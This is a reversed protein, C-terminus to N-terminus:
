DSVRDILECRDRGALSQQRILKEHYGLLFLTRMIPIKLVFKTIFRFPVRSFIYMSGVELHNLFGLREGLEVMGIKSPFTIHQGSEPAFYWWSRSSPKLDSMPLTETQLFLYTKNELVEEFSEMPWRIHELCEIVSVFTANNGLSEPGSLFGIALDQSAYPDYSRANIGCDRLMRTLLGTGGGWDLGSREKEKQLFLFGAIIRTAALGRIVLGTDLLSIPRAHAEELWFPNNVQISFCYECRTYLAQYKLVKDSDYYEVKNGCLRCREFNKNQSKKMM